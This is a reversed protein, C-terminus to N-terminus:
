FSINAGVTITTIPEQTVGTRGSIEASLRVKESMQYNTGVAGEAWNKDGPDIGLSETLGSSSATFDTSDGSFRHGWSARGYVNTKKNMQYDLEYGLNSTVNTDKQTSFDAAFPGGTETYADISTKSWRTDIFPVGTMQKNIPMAYGIEGALGHSNGDPTGRSGAIGSGNLYNRDITLDMDAIYATGFARLGYQPLYSFVASVGRADVNSQGGYIMDTHSASGLYGVGVTIDHDFRLSAGITGNVDHNDFNNDEGLGLSGVTYVSLRSALTPQYPTLLGYGSDDDRMTITQSGDSHKVVSSTNTPVSSMPVSLAGLHQATFMSQDLNGLSTQNAQQSAAINGHLSTGLDEPTTLGGLAINALFVVNNNSADTGFGTVINGNASVGTAEQLDWGTVNVGKATLADSVREVPGGDVWEIATAYGISSAEDGNGVIVRNNASIAHAESFSGGPLMGLITPTANSGVWEIAPDANNIDVVNGLIVSGDHSIAFLNLPAYGSPISLQEIPNNGVWRVYQQNSSSDIAKGAIVSGNDSVFQAQSYTGGSLYGLGQPANNGVWRTAQQNGDSGVSDGVITNGDASIAIPDSNTNAILGGLDVPGSNGIWRIVTANGSGDYDGTGVITNGDASVGLAVSYTGGSLIGLGEATTSNNTWRVAQAAYVPFPSNSYGVLVSGNASIGSLTTINGGGLGDLPQMGGGLTLRYARFNFFNNPDVIPDRNTGAVVTGDSSIMPMSEPPGPMVFGDLSDAHAFSLPTLVSTLLLFLPLTKRTFYSM